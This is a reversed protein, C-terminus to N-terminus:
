LRGTTRKSWIIRWSSSYELWSVILANYISLCKIKRASKVKQSSRHGQQSTRGGRKRQVVCERHERVNVLVREVQQVGQMAHLMATFHITKYEISLVHPLVGAQVGSAESRKQIGRLQIQCAQCLFQLDSEPPAAADAHGFHEVQDGGVDRRQEVVARSALREHVQVILGGGSGLFREVLEDAHVERQEQLCMTRQPHLRRVTGGANRQADLKSGSGLLMRRREAGDVELM